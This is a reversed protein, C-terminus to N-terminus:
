NLSCLKRINKNVVFMTSNRFLFIELIYRLIFRFCTQQM